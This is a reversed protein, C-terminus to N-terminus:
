QGVRREESRPLLYAWRGHGVTSTVFWWTVATTTVITILAEGAFIPLAEIFSARPGARLAFLLPVATFPLMAVVVAVARGLVVETGTPLTEDILEFRQRRVRSASAGAVFITVLSILTISAFGFSNELEFRATDLDVGRNAYILLAAWLLHLLAYSWHRCLLRLEMASATGFRRLTSPM